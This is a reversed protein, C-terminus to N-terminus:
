QGTFTLIAAIGALLLNFVISAILGGTSSKQIISLQESLVSNCGPSNEIPCPQVARDGSDNFGCCQFQTQLQGRTNDDIQDWLDNLNLGGLLTKSKVFTYVNIGIVVILLIVYIVGISKKSKFAAIIGVFAFVIMSCGFIILVLSLFSFLILNFNSKFLPINIKKRMPINGILDKAQLPGLKQLLFAGLVTVFAGGALICINAIVFIISLVIRFFGKKKKKEKYQSNISSNRDDSPGVRSRRYGPEMTDIDVKSM